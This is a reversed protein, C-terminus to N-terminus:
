TRWVTSSTVSASTSRADPVCWSWARRSIAARLSLFYLWIRSAAGSAITTTPCSPIMSRTFRCASIMNPYSRSARTPLGRSVSMGSESRATWARCVALKKPVGRVRAIPEPMAAASARDPASTISM